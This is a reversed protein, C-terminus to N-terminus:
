YRSFIEERAREVGGDGGGIILVKKIDTRKAM